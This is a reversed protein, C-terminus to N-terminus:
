SAPRAQPDPQDALRRRLALVQPAQAPDRGAARAEAKRFALETLLDARRAGARGGFPSPLRSGLRGRSLLFAYEDPNLTQGVEPELETAIWQRERRLALVLTALIVLVGGGDGLLSLFLAWPTAASLTTGLNHLAHFAVALLYGAVAFALDGPRLGRQRALGLGAGAFASFFAHNLGFVVGRMLVVLMWHGLGASVFAGLFYLFNETMAFGFGVLGGYVIGDLVDDLERTRFCLLAVLALAKVAEEVLPAAASVSAVQGALGPALRALPLDLLAEAVLALVAAPGAGWLFAAAVLGLPEREYRDCWWLLLAYLLAPVASVMGSLFLGLVLP